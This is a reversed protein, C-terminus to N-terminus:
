EAAVIFRHTLHATNKVLISKKYPITKLLTGTRASFRICESLNQTLIKDEFEVHKM